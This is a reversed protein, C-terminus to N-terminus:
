FVSFVLLLEFAALASFKSDIYSTFLDIMKKRVYVSDVPLLDNVTQFRSAM